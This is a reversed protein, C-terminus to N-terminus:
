AFVITVFFFSYVMVITALSLLSCTRTQRTLSRSLWICACIYGPTTGRPSALTIPIGKYHPHVVTPIVSTTGKLPSAVQTPIGSSHTHWQFPSAMSHLHRCFLCIFLDVQSLRQKCDSASFQRYASASVFTVGGGKYLFAPVAPKLM